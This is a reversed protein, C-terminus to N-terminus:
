KVSGARRDQARDKTYETHLKMTLALVGMNVALVLLNAILVEM